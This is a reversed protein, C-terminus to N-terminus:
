IHARQALYLLLLPLPDLATGPLLTEAV